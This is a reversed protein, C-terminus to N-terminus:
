QFTTQKVIKGDQLQLASDCFEHVIGTDQSSVIVTKGPIGNALYDAFKNKSDSDLGSFPEDLILLDPNHLMARAIDARKRSGHSLTKM